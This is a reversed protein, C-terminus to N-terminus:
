TEFSIIASITGGKHQGMTDSWDDFFFAVLQIQRGLLVKNFGNGVSVHLDKFCISGYSTDDEKLCVMQHYNQFFLFLPLLSALVLVHTGYRKAELSFHTGQHFGGHPRHDYGKDM